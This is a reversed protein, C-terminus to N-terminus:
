TRQLRQAPMILRRPHHFIDHVRFIDGPLVRVLPAKDDYAHLGVVDPVVTNDLVVVGPSTLDMYTKPPDWSTCMECRFTKGSRDGAPQSNRVDGSAM